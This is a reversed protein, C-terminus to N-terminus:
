SFHDQFGFQPSLTGLLQSFRFIVPTTKSKSPHSPRAFSTGKCSRTERGTSYIYCWLSIKSQCTACKSSNFVLGQGQATKMVQLLDHDHEAIDKGYMCIDDHIAIIGPLRKTIQDMRMQFVVQSMKLGFPMHLFWYHGKHTNFTALYSSPTTLTSAGFDM